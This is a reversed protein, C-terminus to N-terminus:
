TTSKTNEMTSNRCFIPNAVVRHCVSKLFRVVILIKEAENIRCNVCTSYLYLHPEWHYILRLLGCTLIFGVYTLATKVQSPKYYFIEMQDDQGKNILMKFDNPQNGAFSVNCNQYKGEPQIVTIAGTLM